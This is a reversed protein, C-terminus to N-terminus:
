LTARWRRARWSKGTCVPWFIWWTMARSKALELKRKKAFEEFKSLDRKYASYTNVSLGKEVKVHTLFSSIASSLEMM